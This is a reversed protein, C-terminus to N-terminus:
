LVYEKSIVSDELTIIKRMEIALTELICFIMLCKRLTKVPVAVRSLNLEESFCAVQLWL